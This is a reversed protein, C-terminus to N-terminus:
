AKRRIEAKVARSGMIYGYDFVECIVKLLEDTGRQARECLNLLQVSTLDYNGNFANNKRAEAVIKDFDRRM